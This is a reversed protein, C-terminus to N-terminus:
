EPESCELEYLTRDRSHHMKQNEVYAVIKGLDTKSVTFAGYGQQWRFPQVSLCSSMFNSSSGKLKQVAEVVSVKPPWSGVVHVHDEMGNVVILKYGYAAGRSGIYRYLSDEVEEPILPERRATSWNLHYFLQHWAKSM